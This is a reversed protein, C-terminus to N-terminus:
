STWETRTFSPFTNKQLPTETGPLVETMPTGCCVMPVGSDTLKVALNGCHECQYFKM